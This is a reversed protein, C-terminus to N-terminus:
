RRPSDFFRFITNRASRFLVLFWIAYAAKVVVYAAGALLEILEGDNMHLNLGDELLELLTGNRGIQSYGMSVMWAVIQFVMFVRCSQTLWRNAFVDGIRQLFITLCIGAGLTALHASLQLLQSFLGDLGFGGRLPWLRPGFGMDWFYLTTVGLVINLGVGGLFGAVWKSERPAALCKFCGVFFAITLMGIALAGLCFGGQAAVEARRSSSCGILFCVITLSAAFIPSFFMTNLGAQVTRWSPDWRERPDYDGQRRPLRDYGDDDDDRTRLQRYDDEDDQATRPPRWPDLFSRPLAPPPGPAIKGPTPVTDGTATFTGGCKPCRVLKGIMEDPLNLAAQCQTCEISKAM